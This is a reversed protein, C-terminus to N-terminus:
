KLSIKPICPFCLCSKKPNFKIKQKSIWVFNDIITPLINDIFKNIDELQISNDICNSALKKIIEIVLQKKDNGSLDKFKSVRMMLDILIYSINNESFDSSTLNSNEEIIIEKLKDLM